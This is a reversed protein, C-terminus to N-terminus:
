EAAPPAASPAPGGRLLQTLVVALVTTLTLSSEFLPRLWPPVGAYLGPAMDLSLGFILAIGVAFTKRADMGSGLIIQVGSVLMFSTVFILIAGMVPAPMLSFLGSIKPLFGLAVFLAGAAFGIYRSTAGSATSLGVNSASTDSAMGGILGSVTLAASDALLGNGIRELNPAKWDADNVKECMTLNGMSKLAGTVSVIVFMPLLSWRFALDTMGDIWPVAVWPSRDLRALDAPGFFGTAVSCVYGTVMGILVGYLRLKGRGWVNAAIMTVLTVAAVALGVRSIPEEEFTVGLFKSTALPVLSEAVMLVVLGTVESPFLFGLRRIARAFVAEVLGAAITMGRMLPLGGLWAASMSAAFFNPGCLNPCLFGSGFGPLRLAQTMTGIGCAIMTLAVVGRVQHFSSGIERVLVVPLVLTSSMLFIHQLGLAALVPLPPRDNEGYLLGPPRRPV